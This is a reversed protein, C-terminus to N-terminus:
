KISELTQVRNAFLWNELDSIKYLTKRGIKFFPPGQRNCRLNALTGRNLGYIKVAEDPTISVQMIVEQLPNQNYM